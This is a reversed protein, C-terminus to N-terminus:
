ELVAGIQAKAATEAIANFPNLLPNGGAQTWTATGAAFISSIVSDLATKLSTGNDIKIKEAVRVTSAGKVMEVAATGVSVKSDTGNRLVANATDYGSISKALSSVGVFAIADSLSHFRAVPVPAVQGSQFWTDMARDNFAVLCEDGPSIPMTLSADGGKVVFVPVDLCIPYDKLIPVYLGKANPEYRTQKYAITVTATQTAADFSQIIGIHHCNLSLFIDKKLLDLLDKLSPDSVVKNLPVTPEAM